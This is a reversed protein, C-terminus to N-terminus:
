GEETIGQSQWELLFPREGMQERCEVGQDRGPYELETEVVSMTVKSVKWLGKERGTRM